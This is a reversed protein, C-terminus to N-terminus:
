RSSPARSSFAAEGVHSAAPTHCLAPPDLWSFVTAQEPVNGKCERQIKLSYLKESELGSSTASGFSARVM